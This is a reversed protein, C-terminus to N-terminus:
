TKDEAKSAIKSALYNIGWAIIRALFEDGEHQSPYTYALGAPSEYCVPCLWAWQKQDDQTCPGHGRTRAYADCERLDVTYWGCNNCDEPKPTHIIRTM